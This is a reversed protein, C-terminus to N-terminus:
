EWKNPLLKETVKGYVAMHAREFLEALLECKYPINGRWDNFAHNQRELEFEYHRLAEIILKGEGRTLPFFITAKDKEEMAQFRDYDKFKRDIRKMTERVASYSVGLRRSIAMMNLGQEHLDWVRRQKESLIEYKTKRM